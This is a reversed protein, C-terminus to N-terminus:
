LNYIYEKDKGDLLIIGSKISIYVRDKGYILM